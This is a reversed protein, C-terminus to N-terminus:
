STWRARCRRPNPRHRHRTAPPPATATATAQEAEGNDESASASDSEAAPDAAANQAAVPQALLTLLAPGLGTLIGLSCKVFLRPEAERFSSPSAM